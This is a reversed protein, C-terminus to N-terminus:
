ISKSLSFKKKKKLPAFFSVINISLEVTSGLTETVIFLPAVSLLVENTSAGTDPPLNDEESM